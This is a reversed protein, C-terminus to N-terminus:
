SRPWSPRSLRLRVNAKDRCQTGLSLVTWIFPKSSSESSYRSRLFRHCPRGRRDGSPHAQGIVDAQAHQRRRERPLQHVLQQELGLPHIGPLPRQRRVHHHVVHQGQREIGLDRGLFHEAAHHFPCPPQALGRVRLPGGLGRDRLRPDAQARRRELCQIAGHDRRDRGRARGAGPIAAPAHHTEIPRREVDAVGRHIRGGETSRGARAAHVRGPRNRLDAEYPQELIARVRDRRRLEPRVARMFAHQGDVDEGSQGALHQAKRIPAEETEIQPARRARRAGRRAIPQDRGDPLRRTRWGGFEGGEMVLAPLDLGGEVFELGMRAARRPDQAARCGVQDDLFCPTKQERM